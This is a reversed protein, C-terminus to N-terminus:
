NAASALYVLNSITAFLQTDFEHEYLRLHAWAEFDRFQVVKPSPDSEEKGSSRQRLVALNCLEALDLIINVRVLLDDGLKLLIGTETQVIDSCSSLRYVIMKGRNLADDLVVKGIRGFTIKLM